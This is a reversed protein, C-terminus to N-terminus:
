SLLVQRLSSSLAHRLSFHLSLAASALLCLLMTALMPWPIALSFNTVYSQLAPLNFTDIASLLPVAVAALVTGLVTGLLAAMATRRVTIELYCKEMEREATGMLLMFAIDRRDREIYEAALSISFFGALFAILAVIVSLSAVSIQINNWISSNMQRYDMAAIGEAKLRGALATADADTVIEWSVNGSVLGSDTFVLASDFEGYGTNYTGEVFLYVPRVRGLASDFLMLALRGGPEVGLEHALLTSLVIGHLSTTNEVKELDLAEAREPFFYGDDVGRVSVLATETASYALAPSTSVRNVIASEDLLTSPPESLCTVSGGGLLQLVTELGDAMSRIFVMSFSLATMILVILLVSLLGRAKWAFSQGRGSKRRVYLSLSARKM